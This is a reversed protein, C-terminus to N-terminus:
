LTMSDVTSKLQNVGVKISTFAAANVPISSPSGPASCTVQLASMAGLASAIQALSSSILVLLNQSETGVHLKSATILADTANLELRKDAVIVINAQHIRRWDVSCEAGPNRYGTIIPYRADGGIFELWVLDGAEIRLETARSSHIASDGIPYEIEALPLVDGGDTLGPIEVRCKRSENLYERVIGPFRGPSISMM